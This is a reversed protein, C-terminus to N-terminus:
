EYIKAHSSIRIVLRYLCDTCTEILTQSALTGPMLRLCGERLGQSYTLFPGYLETNERQATLLRHM